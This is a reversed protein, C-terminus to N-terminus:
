GIAAANAGGQELVRQAADREDELRKKHLYYNATSNDVFESLATTIKYTLRSYTDLIQGLSPRNDKTQM